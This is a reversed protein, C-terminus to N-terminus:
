FSRLAAAAAAILKNCNVADATWKLIAAQSVNM